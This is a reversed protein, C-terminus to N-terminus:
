SRKTFFADFYPSFLMRAAHTRQVNLLQLRIIHCVGIGLKMNLENKCYFISRRKNL